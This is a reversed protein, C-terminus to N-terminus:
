RKAGGLLLVFYRLLAMAMNLVAVVFILDFVTGLSWLVLQAFSTFGTPFGFFGYKLLNIM